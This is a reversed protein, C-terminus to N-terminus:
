QAARKLWPRRLTLLARGFPTTVLAAIATLDSDLPQWTGGGGSEGGTVDAVSVVNTVLVDDADRVRLSYDGDGAFVFAQNQGNVIRGGLTRLPQDAEETLEADWYVSIPSEEPDMGAVGVYIKGADLLTGRSDLYLPVPNGILQV